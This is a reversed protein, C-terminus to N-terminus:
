DLHGLLILKDNESINLAVGRKPNLTMFNDHNTKFGLLVQGSASIIDQIEEFTNNTAINYKKANHFSVSNDTSDCIKQFIINLDPRMATNALMHSVVEPSVVVDGDLKSFLTLNENNFLELVIKPKSPLDKILEKIHLYGFIGKADSEEITQYRDNAVILINNYKTIDIKQIDVLNSYDLDHHNIEIMENKINHGELVDLRSDIPFTSVIDCTILENEYYSLEELITPLKSSWGLIAISRNKKKTVLTNTQTNDLQCSNINGSFKTDELSKALFVIKDNKDIITSKSPSLLVTSDEGIKGLPISNKFHQHLDCWAKGVLEPVDRFYLSNKGIESLIEEYVHSIGPNRLFQCLLRSILLHSSIAEVRGNFVRNALQIKRHDFIEVVLIPPKRQLQSAKESITILTKITKSDEIEYGEPHASPGNMIVVSANWLDVRHLDNLKQPTGSRFIVQLKNWKKDLKEKLEQQISPSVQQALIVIDISKKEILKLFRHLRTGGSLFNKIISPTRNNWGLLVIHKRKYVPTLGSELDRIVKNLWQTLVAVLAGMFLVYGLITVITSVTIRLLGKDDGLYGPDSLRLFAWWFSEFLPTSQEEFYWVIGGAVTSVFIILAAVFLLLYTPGGMLFREIKFKFYNSIKKQISM